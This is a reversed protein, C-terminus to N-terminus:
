AGTNWDSVKVNQTYFGRVSEYAPYSPEYSAASWSSTLVLNRM